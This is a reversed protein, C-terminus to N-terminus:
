DNRANSCPTWVLFMKLRSSSTKTQMKLALFVYDHECCHIHSKWQDPLTHPQRDRRLIMPLLSSLGSDPQVILRLVWVGAM